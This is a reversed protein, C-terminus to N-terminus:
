PALPGLREDLEFRALLDALVLQDPEAALVQGLELARGRDLEALQRPGRGSLDLLVHEALLLPLAVLLRDASPEARACPMRRARAAAPRRSRPTSGSRCM